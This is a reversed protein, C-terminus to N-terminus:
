PYEVRFELKGRDFEERILLRLRAAATESGVGITAVWAAGGGAAGFLLEDTQGSLAQMDAGWEFPQGISPKSDVDRESEIELRCGAIEPRLLARLRDRVNSERVVLEIRRGDLGHRLSCDVADPHERLYDCARRAERTACWEAGALAVGALALSLAVVLARRSRV